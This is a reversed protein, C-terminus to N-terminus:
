IGNTDGQFIPKELRIDVILHLRDPDKVAKIRYDDDDPDVGMAIAREPRWNGGRKLSSQPREALEWLRKQVSVRTMGAKACLGAHQPSMAVLVDSNFWMNWSGTSTMSDGIGRLLREPETSVDDFHLGTPFLM